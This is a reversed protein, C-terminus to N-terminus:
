GFLTILKQERYNFIEKVKNSVLLANAIRGIFGFDLAYYLEDEM